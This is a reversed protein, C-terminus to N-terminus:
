PRVGLFAFRERLEQEDLGFDAASYRHTGHAHRPHSENYAAVFAAPDPPPDLGAAAYVTQVAAVPDRVLDTYQLDVFTAAESAPEARYGGARRFWLETQDVLTRGVEAADVEDSYTTRFVAFLSAGSAVTEVVDRHLHVVVAGPFAEVLSPLEATHPPAKLVWRRGDGRDLTELVRRYNAYTATFDQGALWRTYSDLRMISPFAWNRLSTGMALGCEEPLRAGSDHITRLEPNLAHLMEHAVASADIHVEREYDNMCALRCPNALEAPLPARLRQDTALLRFLFTTGTRWGGTIFIPPILGADARGPNVERHRSMAAGARLRGIATNAAMAMGVSNLRADERASGLYHELGERWGEDFRDEDGPNRAAVSALHDPELLYREPRAARDAEAAALAARAADTRPAPHWM